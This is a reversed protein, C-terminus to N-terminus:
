AAAGEPLRQKPRNPRRVAQNAEYLDAPTIQGDCIRILTPWYYDPIGFRPWREVAWHSIRWGDATCEQAIKERGGALRIISAITSM